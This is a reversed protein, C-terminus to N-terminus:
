NALAEQPQEIMAACADGREVIRDDVPQVFRGINCPKIVANSPKDRLM